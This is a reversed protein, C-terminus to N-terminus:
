EKEKQSLLLCSKGYVLLGEKKTADVDEKQGLYEYIAIAKKIAVLAGCSDGTKHKALSYFILVLAYGPTLELGLEERLKLSKNYFDMASLYDGQSQRISGAESLSSAIGALEAPRSNAFIDEISSDLSYLKSISSIILAAFLIKKM